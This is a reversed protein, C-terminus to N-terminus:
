INISSLFDEGKVQFIENDNIAVLKTFIAYQVIELIIFIIIM